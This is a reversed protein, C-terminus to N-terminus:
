WPRVPPPIDAPASAPQGPHAKNWAHLRADAHYFNLDAQRIDKLRAERDAWLGAGTTDAVILSGGLVLLVAVRARNARVLSRPDSTTAARRIRDAIGALGAGIILLQIPFLAFYPVRITPNTRYTWVLPLAVIVLVILWTLTWAFTRRALMALPIAVLWAIAFLPDFPSADRWFIRATGEWLRDVNDRWSHTEFYTRADFRPPGGQHADKYTDAWMYNTLYEHYFPDRHYVARAILSPSAAIAFGVVFLGVASLTRWRRAPAHFIPMLLVAVVLAAAFILGNPRTLYCLGVVLGAAFLMGPAPARRRATVLAMALATLCLFLTDSLALTGHLLFYPNFVFLAACIVGVLGGALGRVALFMLPVTLAHAIVNVWRYASADDLFAARFGAVALPYLFQRHAFGNDIFRLRYDGDLFDQAIWDYAIGDSFVYDFAPDDTTEVLAISQGLAIVTLAVVALWSLVDRNRTRSMEVNATAKPSEM